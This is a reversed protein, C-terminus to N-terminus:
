KTLCTKLRERAEKIGCRHERVDSVYKKFLKKNKFM